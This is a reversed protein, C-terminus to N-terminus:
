MYAIYNWDCDIDPVGRIVTRRNVDRNFNCAPINHDRSIKINGVGSEAWLYVTERIHLVYMNCIITVVNGEEGEKQGSIGPKNFHVLNGPLVM